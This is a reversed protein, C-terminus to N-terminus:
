VLNIYRYLLIKPTASIIVTIAKLRAGAGALPAFGNTVNLAKVPRGPDVILTVPPLKLGPSCIETEELSGVKEAEAVAPDFPFKPGTVIVIGM